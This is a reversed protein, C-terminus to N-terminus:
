TRKAEREEKRQKVGDIALLLFLAGTVGMVIYFPKLNWDDGTKVVNRNQGASQLEVAFNMRIKAWTDQYVNGQTEGDLSVVLTIYGSEGSALTDLAFWDQLGDTAEFLGSRYNSVNGTDDIFSHETSFGVEGGVRDSNFLEIARSGDASQYTLLYSYAANQISARAAEELSKRVENTMYWRTTEAHGNKLTITFTCSDGPQLQSLANTVASSSFNSEMKANATFTVWNGNRVYDEACAPAAMACLLALALLLSFVSKKM